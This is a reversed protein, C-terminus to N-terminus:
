PRRGRALSQRIRTIAERWDSASYDGKEVRALRAEIEATWAAEYDADIEDPELSLLLQRALTAREKRPLQLALEQIDKWAQM